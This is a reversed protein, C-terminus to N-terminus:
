TFLSAFLNVQPSATLPFYTHHRAMTAFNLPSPSAPLSTKFPPFPSNFLPLSTKFDDYPSSTSTVHNNSITTNTFELFM